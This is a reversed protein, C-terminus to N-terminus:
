LVGQVKKSPKQRPPSIPLVSGHMRVFGAIRQGTQQLAPANAGGAVAIEPILDPLAHIAVGAEGPPAIDAAMADAPRHGGHEGEDDRAPSPMRHGPRSEVGFPIRHDNGIQAPQVRPDDRLQMTMILYM